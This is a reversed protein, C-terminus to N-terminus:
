KQVIDRWRIDMRSTKGINGNKDRSTFAKGMIGTM